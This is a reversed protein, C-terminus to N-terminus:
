EEKEWEKLWYEINDRFSIIYEKMEKNSIGIYNRGLFNENKYEYIYEFINLYLGTLDAIYSLANLHELTICGQDNERERSEIHELLKNLYKITDEEYIPKEMLYEGFNNAKM